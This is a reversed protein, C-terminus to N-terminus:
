NKNLGKDIDDCFREAEERDSIDDCLSEFKKPETAFGVPYALGIMMAVGMIWGLIQWIWIVPMGYPWSEPDSSSWFIMPVISFFLWIVPAVWAFRKWWVSTNTPSKPDHTQLFAHFKKRHDRDEKSDSFFPIKNPSTNEVWSISLAFLLNFFIGWGASHITGPWQGWPVPILNKGFETLTVAILGAILGVMVGHRTLFPWWCVAVLAPLMQVGYAVALAGMFALLDTGSIAVWIAVLTVLLISVMALIIQWGEGVSKWVGNKFIDRSIISGITSMYSAATSQIAALACITLISMLVSYIDSTMRIFLPILGESGLDDHKLIDRDDLFIGLLNRGSDSYERLAADAGLLHGGFGQIAPMTILIAGIVLSSVWVQQIGFAKPEKTSFAWISFAPSSQIGMMAILFTFVMIGTWYGTELADKKDSVLQIGQMTVYKSAEEPSYFEKKFVIIDKIGELFRELGGVYHIVIWGLAFIGVTLLIGQMTDVYAIGRLGGMIVYFILVISLIWIGTEVSVAGDTIAYFLFGSAKLQIAIYPVSYMLAVVVVLWRMAPSKFYAYFMEGPTVFGCRKGLMWQRKLFFMGSLPIAIAYFSAYLAPFGEAYITGPHSIFTWGSYCTATAALVFVWGPLARGAIFYASPKQKYWWLAGQFFAMILCYGWYIVLAWFIPTPVRSIEEWM